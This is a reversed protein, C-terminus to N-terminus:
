LGGTPWSVGAARGLGMFVHVGIYACQALATFMMYIQLPPMRAERYYWLTM